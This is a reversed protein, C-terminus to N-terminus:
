NLDATSSIQAVEGELGEWPAKLEKTEPAEASDYIYIVQM